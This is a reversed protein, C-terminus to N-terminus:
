VNKLTFPQTVPYTSTAESVFQWVPGLLAVGAQVGVEPTHTHERGRPRALMPTVGKSEIPDCCNSITVSRVLGGNLM